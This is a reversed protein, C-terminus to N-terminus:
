KYGTIKTPFKGTRNYTNLRRRYDAISASLTKKNWLIFMSLYGARTPDGTGLDKRHRFIYRNRREVNQHKTNDSMGSAGFHIIRKKGGVNFTAMLKKGARNSKKINVLKIQKKKGFNNGLGFENGNADVEVVNLICKKRYGKLPDLCGTKIKEVIEPSKTCKSRFSEYKNWVQKLTPGTNINLKKNVKNHILYLWKVLTVRSEMVNINLQTDSDEIFGQYSERCYRCPLVNGVLKFFFLYNVKQEETPKWPYNQAICHLFLWGGPGWVRTQMGTDDGPKERFVKSFKM